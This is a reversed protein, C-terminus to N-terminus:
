VPVELDRIEIYGNPFSSGIPDHSYITIKSRDSKSLEDTDVLLLTIGKDRIRVAIGLLNSIPSLTIWRKDCSFRITKGGDILQGSEPMAGADRGNLPGTLGFCPIKEGISLRSLYKTKQEETGHQLILQSPGLSNPVMIRHLWNGDRDVTALRQILKAHFYPSQGMGGFTTPTEIGMLRYEKVVDNMTDACKMAGVRQGITDLLTTEAETLRIPPPRFAPLLPTSVRSRLLAQKEVTNLSKWARAAWRYM